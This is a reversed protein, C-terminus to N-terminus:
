SPQMAKGSVKGGSAQIRALIFAAAEPTLDALPLTLFESKSLLLLWCSRFQWVETVASWPLTATGAGSSLSLSTESADLTAQPKGMAKLKGLANRYHVIYLAAMFAIGLILVSALVGVLWSTDSSHIRMILSAGVLALAVLFRLGVVRWWFSRVAQRILAENYNLITRHM